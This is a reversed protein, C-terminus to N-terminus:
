RGVIGMNNIVRDLLEDTATMYRAVANYTHQFKVMNAMEEDLSVSSVSQRQTSVQSLLTNSNEEMRNAEQAQVGLDGILQEYDDQYTEFIDALARANDGNGAGPNEASSAAILNPDQMIEDAVGISGAVKQQNDVIFFNEGKDENLDQGNSHVSNFEDAFESAMDDLTNLVETYSDSAGAFASISGQGPSLSLTDNTNEEGEGGSANVINISDGSGDIKLRKIDGQNEGDVLKVEGNNVSITVLGDATEPAKSDDSNYSVDINMMNSLEDILRDREDYLNNATYGTVELQQVQENIGDIQEIITNANEITVDLEDKLDGRITQLSESLYNFTEAMAQGRQAVVARAGDNTPNASLDQLSQWFQDMSASLGTDSPENLINEMRSLADAKTEWYGALTNQSRYQTDLFQNRIRQVSGAEVGTGIQGAIEPANRSAVPYANEAEFNVRQRTYGETNANAINNGTTYLASQQASLAQRAMELGQFGM